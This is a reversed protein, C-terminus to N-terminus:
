RDSVIVSESTGFILEDIDQVTIHNHMMNKHWRREFNCNLYLAPIYFSCPAFQLIQM